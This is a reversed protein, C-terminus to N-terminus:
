GLQGRLAGDPFDSTHINVYYGVPNAVIAAVVDAEVTACGSAVGSADPESLPVVVDGSEGVAGVHIHAGTAPLMANMVSIDWCVENTEQNISVTATGTSDADGPGPVEQPGSLPATFSITMAGEEDSAADTPEATPEADMEETAEAEEVMDDPSMDSIAIATFFRTLESRLATCEEPEDEVVSPSLMTMDTTDMDGMLQANIETEDMAMMDSIDAMMTDDQMATDDEMDMMMADFAPAFQGRDIRTLDVTEEDAEMMTEHISNFNFYREAIYLMVVLDSSCTVSETDEEDGQAFLASTVMLGSLLAIIGILVILRRSLTTM